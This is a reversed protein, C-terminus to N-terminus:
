SRESAGTGDSLGQPPAHSRTSRSVKSLLSHGLAPGEDIGYDCTCSRFDPTFTLKMWGNRANDRWRADVALGTVSGRIVGVRGFRGLVTSDRVILHIISNGLFASPNESRYKGSANAM